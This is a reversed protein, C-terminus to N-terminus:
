PGRYPDPPKPDPHVRQTESKVGSSERKVSERSTSAARWMLSGCVVFADCSIRDLSAHRGSIKALGFLFPCALNCANAQCLFCSVREQTTLYLSSTDQVRTTTPTIVIITNALRSVRTSTPSSESANRQYQSQRRPTSPRM